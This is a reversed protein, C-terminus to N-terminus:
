LDIELDAINIGAVLKPKAPALKYEYAPRARFAALLEESSTGLYLLSGSGGWSFLAVHGDPCDVIIAAQHGSFRQSRAFAELPTM